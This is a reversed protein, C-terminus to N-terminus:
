GITFQRAFPNQVLKILKASDVSGDPNRCGEALASIHEALTPEALKRPRYLTVAPRIPYTPTGIQTNKM